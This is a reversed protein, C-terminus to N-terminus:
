ARKVFVKECEKGCFYFIQGEVKLQQATEKPIYTHCVPDEVM